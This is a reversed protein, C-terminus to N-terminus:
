KQLLVHSLAAIRAEGTQYGFTVPVHVTWDRLHEAFIVFQLLAEGEEGIDVLNFAVGLEVKDVRVDEDFVRSRKGGVDNVDAANVDIM